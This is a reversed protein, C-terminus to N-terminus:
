FFGLVTHGYSIMFFHIKNEKGNFNILNDSPATSNLSCRYKSKAIFIDSTNQNPKCLSIGVLNRCRDLTVNITFLLFDIPDLRYPM